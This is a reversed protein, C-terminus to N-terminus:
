IEHFHEDADPCGTNPIEELLTFFVRGTDDKDVFDIGDPPQAPRSQAASMVFALLGEVLQQNLHIPKIRCFADNQNGRGVPRIHQVRGQKSRTPKVPLDHHISRVQLAATFNQFHVGLFNRDRGVDIQFFNRSACRSKRPGIQFIKDVFRREPGGPEALFFHFDDIKFHGFIFYQHPSFSFAQDQAVLFFSGRGVMFCPVREDGLKNRSRIGHM